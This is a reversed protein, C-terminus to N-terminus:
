RTEKRSSLGQARFAKHIADAEHESMLVECMRIHTKTTAYCRLVKTSLQKSSCAELFARRAATVFRPRNTALVKGDHAMVSAVHDAVAPCDTPRAEAYLSPHLTAAASWAKAAGKPNDQKEYVLGLHYHATALRDNLQVARELSIQAASLNDSNWYAKGLKYHYMEDDPKIGTAESYAKAAADFNKMADHLQGLSYWASDNRPDTAAAKELLEVSQSMQGQNYADVGENALRISEKAKQMTDESDPEKEPGAHDLSEPHPAALPPDQHQGSSCSVLFLSLFFARMAVKMACRGVELRVHWGGPALDITPIESLCSGEGNHTGSALDVILWLHKSTTM